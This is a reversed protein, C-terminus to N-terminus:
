RKRDSKCHWAITHLGNDYTPWRYATHLDLHHHSLFFVSMKREENKVGRERERQGDTDRDTDRQRDRM